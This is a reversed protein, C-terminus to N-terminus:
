LVVTTVLQSTRTYTHPTHPTHHTHTDHTHPSTRTHHTYTHTCTHTCAHTDNVATSKYFTKSFLMVGHVGLSYTQEVSHKVKYMHEGHAQRHFSIQHTGQTHSPSNRFVVPVWLIPFDEWPFGPAPAHTHTHCLSNHVQWYFALSTDSNCVHRQIYTHVYLHVYTRIYMGVYTCTFKGIIGMLKVSLCCTIHMHCAHSACTHIYTHKYTGELSLSSSPPWSHTTM